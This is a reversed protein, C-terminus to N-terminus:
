EGGMTVNCACDSVLFILFSHSVALFSRSNYRFCSLACKRPRHSLLQFVPAAAQVLTLPTSHCSPGPRCIVFTWLFLKWWRGVVVVVIAEVVDAWGPGGGAAWTTSCSGSSCCAGFVKSAARSRGRKWHRWTKHWIVCSKMFLHGEGHPLHGEHPHYPCLLAYPWVSFIERKKPFTSTSLDHGGTDHLQSYRM